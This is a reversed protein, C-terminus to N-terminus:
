WYVTREITRSQSPITYVTRKVRTVTPYWARYYDGADFRIELIQRGMYDYHSGVVLGEKKGVHPVNVAVVDGAAIADSM